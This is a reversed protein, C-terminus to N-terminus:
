RFLTGRVVHRGGPKVAAQEIVQRDVRDVRDAEVQLRDSM